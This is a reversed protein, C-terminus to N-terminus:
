GNAPAGCNPCSPLEAAFVTKCYACARRPVRADPSLPKLSQFVQAMEASSMVDNADSPQWIVEMANLNADGQLVTQIGQALSARDTPTRFGFYGGRRATILTVVVFGGGEEARATSRPGEIKRVGGADNRVTEVIFRGRETSVATEFYQQAMQMSIGESLVPDVMYAADLYQSLMQATEQAAAGLGNGGQLNSREAIQAIAAQIQARARSDFAISLKAVAFTDMGGGPPMPMPGGMPPYNAMARGGGAKKQMVVVVIVIVLIVLIICCLSGVGGGSSSGYSTGGYSTGSYSPRSYSTGGGTNYSPRSYSPRSYSTGSSSPRSPTSGSGWRSNGFSGGTHQSLASLPSFFLAALLLVLLAWWRQKTM